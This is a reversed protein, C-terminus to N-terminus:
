KCKDPELDVTVICTLQVAYDLYVSTPYALMKLFQFKNFPHARTPPLGM